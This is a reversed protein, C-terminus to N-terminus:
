RRTPEGARAPHRRAHRGARAGAGPRPRAARRGRASSPATARRIIRRAARRVRRARLRAGALRRHADRRARGSRPLDPLPRRVPRSASCRTPDAAISTPSRRRRRDRRGGDADPVIIVEAMPRSRDPGRGVARPRPLRAAPRAGARRPGLRRCSRRSRAGATSRHACGTSCRRGLASLGGGIVVVDVDVTLVLIRVAAAVGEFFRAQVDIAIAIARAPRPSCTARPLAADTPWMGPSRRAALRHTELCGRQGCRACRGRAPRDPHPRDRGRSRPRRALLRGGLVIGPRSGPVSISTPWRSSGNATGDGRAPPVRGDRRRQRRERRAGARRPARQHGGGLDLDDVGLNVAHAVRGTVSDVAGPIGVGISRSTPSRGARCRRRGAASTSPRRSSM